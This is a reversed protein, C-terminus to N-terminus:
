MAFELFSFYNFDDLSLFNLQLINKSILFQKLKVMCFKCAIAIVSGFNSLSDNDLHHDLYLVSTHTFIHVVEPSKVFM